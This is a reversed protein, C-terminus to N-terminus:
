KRGSKRAEIKFSKVQFRYGLVNLKFCRVQFQKKSVAKNGHRLKEERPASKVVEGSSKLYVIAPGPLLKTGSEHVALIGKASGSPTGAFL